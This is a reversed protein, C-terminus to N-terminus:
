GCAVSVCCLVITTTTTTTTIITITNVREQVNRHRPALVEHVKKLKCAIRRLRAPIQRNRIHQQRKGKLLLAWGKCQEGGAIACLQLVRRQQHPQQRRQLAKASDWKGAVQSGHLVVNDRVLVAHRCQVDARVAPQRQTNLRHHQIHLLGHETLQLFRQPQKPFLRIGGHDFHQRECVFVLLSPGLRQEGRSHLAPTATVARPVFEEEHEELPTHM